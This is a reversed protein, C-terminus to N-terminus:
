VLYSTHLSSNSGLGDLSGGSGEDLLVIALLYILSYHSVDPTNKPQGVVEMHVLSDDIVDRLDLGLSESVLDGTEGGVQHLSDLLSGDSTDGELKLFLLALSLHVEDGLLGLDLDLLDFDAVVSDELVHDLVETNALEDRAELLVVLLASGTAAVALSKLSSKTLM